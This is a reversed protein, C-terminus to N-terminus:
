CSFSVVWNIWLCKLSSNSCPTTKECIIGRTFPVSFRESTLPGGQLNTHQAMHIAIVEDQPQAPCGPLAWRLPAVLYLFVQIPSDIFLHSQTEWCGFRGDRRARAWSEPIETRTPLLFVAGVDAAGGLSLLSPHAKPQQLALHVPLQKLTGTFM